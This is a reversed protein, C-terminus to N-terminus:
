IKAIFIHPPYQVQTLFLANGPVSFGANSRNKSNIINQFDVLNIKKQGVELLTGVIARVMNRLFRDASIHFVLLDNEYQFFAKEIKCIHTKVDTKSKSFCQFDTNQILIQCAENMLNIDLNRQFYYAFDLSFPNKKQTICYQYSRQIADFRAHADDQVRYLAYLVIDKPLFSNLRKVFDNPLEGEFDFHAFMQRAHVGTDTRGAGTLVVKERLFTTFSKEMVEQISISQPQIQWGFYAKGNYAFEIFYRM